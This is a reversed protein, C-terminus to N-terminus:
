EFYSYKAKFCYKTSKSHLEVSLTAEKPEIWVYLQFLTFHSMINAFWMIPSRMYKSNGYILINKQWNLSSFSTFLQLLILIILIGKISFFIVYHEMHNMQRWEVSNRFYLNGYSELTKLYGDCFKACQKTLHPHLCLLTHYKALHSFSLLGHLLHISFTM